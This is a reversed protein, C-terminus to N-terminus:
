FSYGLGIQLVRNKFNVNDIDDANSLGFHYRINASLQNTIQYGAGINLGFIFSNYVKKVDVDTTKTSNDYYTYTEKANASLLVDGQLGAEAYFKDIFNYQFMLPISLYNAKITADYKTSGGSFNEKFGKMSYLLEPQFSVKSGLPVHAFFGIHLGALNNIESSVSREISVTSLNLGAKVGYKTAEKKDQAQCVMTTICVVALIVKKM